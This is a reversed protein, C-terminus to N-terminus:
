PFMQMYKNFYQLLQNCLIKFVNFDTCAYKSVTTHRTKKEKLTPVDNLLSHGTFLTMEEAFGAYVLPVIGVIIAAARDSSLGKLGRVQLVDNSEIPHYLRHLNEVRPFFWSACPSTGQVHLCVM